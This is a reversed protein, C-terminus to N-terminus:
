CNQLRSNSRRRRTLFGGAVLASGFLVIAGPLPTPGLGQGGGGAPSNVFVNDLEFANQSSSLVVSLLAATGTWTVYGNTSSASQDGNAPNPGTFTQSGGGVFNLIVQNYQDISGWYFGFTTPAVAGFSITETEGGEVSLYPTTDPFPEATDPNNPVSTTPDAIVGTGSFSAFSDSYSGLASGPTLANFTEVSTGPPPDAFVGGSSFTMTDAAAAGSFALLVMASLGLVRNIDLM